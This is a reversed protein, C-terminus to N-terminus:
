QTVNIWLHLSEFLEETDGNKYLKFEVKKNEGAAQPVFTVENEWKEEHALPVPGVEQIRLGDIAIEVRYDVSNHERNVIGVIVRGEEGVKVEEPYGSAKGEPGLIYFETFTEGIKPTAIVYGLTGIAGLIVVILVVTLAKDWMSGGWGPIRFSINISFKESEELRAQRIWAVISMIFIFSSVAYLTSEVTIGWWTYNLILGILPVVAISLGFSLALREIGGISDQKPFLALILTYGPFFLLFPLGIIIRLVDNLVFLIVLILAIVLLNILWLGSGNKFRM